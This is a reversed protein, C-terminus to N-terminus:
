KYEENKGDKDKFLIGCINCNRDTSKVTRNGCAQCEYMGEGLTLKTNKQSFYYLDCNKDQRFEVALLVRLFLAIAIGFGFSLKAFVALIPSKYVLMLLEVAGPILLAFCASAGLIKGGYGISNIKKM